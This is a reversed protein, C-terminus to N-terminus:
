ALAQIVSAGALLQLHRRVPQAEEHGRHAFRELFASQEEGVVRAAVHHVEAEPIFRLQALRPQPKGGALQTEGLEAQRMAPAEGDVLQRKETMPNRRGAPQAEVRSKEQARRRGILRRAERAIFHRLQNPAGGGFGQRFVGVLLQEQHIRRARDQLLNRGHAADVFQEVEGAPGRTM